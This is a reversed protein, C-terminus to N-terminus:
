STRCAACCGRRLASRAACRPGLRAYSDGSLKIEGADVARLGALSHLLTSKGVGNRGLIALREGPQLALNLGRLIPRGAISIALDRCALLPSIM